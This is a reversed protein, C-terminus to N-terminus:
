PVSRPTTRERPADAARLLRAGLTAMHERLEAPEHITLEEGLLGVWLALEDLSNSGSVLECSNEDIPTVVGVAPGIREAVVAAPSHVTIRSRYRYADTTIGRSTYGAIDPDPAPRPSFRPGTPTRPTLRDLRFTRWDVRDVDWALLYWRRGAHVIRHPELVRRSPTGDHRRYDVRLQQTDRVAGAVALLVDVDVTPGPGTMAVITSLLTHVRHRLRSPLVQELKAMAQVATEDVGAIGSLAASRLGVAIAVAEDDDLLLPPLVAGSGLRYGGGAGPSADVPYGLLRLRDVDRRVTRPTVDLRVALEAGSWDRRTQLLSLLRLLRASTELM